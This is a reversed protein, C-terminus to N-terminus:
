YKENNKKFNIKNNKLFNLIYTEIHKDNNIFNKNIHNLIKESNGEFNKNIFFSDKLLSSENNLNLYHYYHMYIFEYIKKKDFNIKGIYKDLNFMITKLQNLNNANICFNYNIHPNDGTNIAPIHYFAYEHAISGHNTIICKPKLKIIDLHSVEKDLYHIHKFKKLLHRHINIHGPLSHPHPKYFWDYNDMKESVTMFFTAHEYFDNFIMSRYRHPYDYFCHPFIIIKKKTNNLNIIKKSPNKRFQSQKMYPLSKDFNGSFRKKIIQKGLILAQNKKVVSFNSFTKKYNYYPPEDLNYKDVKILRFIAKGRNESKIKIVAIRKSQAIRTIIGYSIYCLHSPIIYKVSNKKLFSNVEEFIKQARFFISKLRSDHIILTPEYTTRLFSDYILDGIKIQDKKYNLLNKKTKITSFFKEYRHLDQKTYSFDYESIGKSVNFSNYIKKLKYIYYSSCSLKSQYFDFYYFAIKYKKEKSLINVLYSWFYIWPYWPFLEVLIVEKSNVKSSNKWKKLSLNVFLKEAKTLFINNKIFLSLIKINKSIIKLFKNKKLM